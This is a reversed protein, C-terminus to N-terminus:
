SAAQQLYMIAAGLMVHSDLRKYARFGIQGTGAYLEMLVKIQLGARDGIWFYSFDGFLVTKAGAAPVAMNPNSFVPRGLIMDPQGAQLSPQWIYQNTTDKFKRVIKLTADNLMWSAHPRYKYDVAHYLDIISDASTITTVQSTGNALVLGSTAGTVVGQPQSSGTGTTFATNEAAAFAQAFDPKLIADWLPFRADAVMEDSAKALRTYKYPSFAVEGFTPEVENFGSAENSLVAATSASVTPMRTDDSTLPVVRAGAMRLISLDYLARTISEGYETPTLYGGQADTGINLAAKIEPPAQSGTRLYIEFAKGEVSLQDASKGGVGVPGSGGRGRAQQELRLPTALRGNAAVLENLDVDLKDARELLQAESQKQQCQDLLGDVQTRVDAPMEKGEWQAMLSKAEVLVTGAAQYFAKIADTNAM